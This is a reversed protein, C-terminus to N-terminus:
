GLQSLCDPGACGGEVVTKKSLAQSKPCPPPTSSGMNKKADHFRFLEGRNQWAIPGAAEGSEERVAALPVEVDERSEVASRGM